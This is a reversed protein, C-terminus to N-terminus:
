EERKQPAHVMALTLLFAPIILSMALYFPLEPSFHEYLFGGTASGVAMVINNVFSSFGSVKGRSEKPTLDAQLFRRNLL